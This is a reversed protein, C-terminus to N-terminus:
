GHLVWEVLDEITTPAVSGPPEVEGSAFNLTALGHARYTAAVTSKDVVDAPLDIVGLRCSALVTGVEAADLFGHNVVALGRVPSEDLPGAGISHVRAELGPAATRWADGDRLKEILRAREGPGGLVAIDLRQEFPPATAASPFNSPTPLKVVKGEVRRGVRHIWRDCNVAVADAAPLALALPPRQILGRLRRIPQQTFLPQEWGEHVSLALRVGPRARRWVRLQQAFALPSGVHRWKALGFNAWHVWLIDLPGDLHDWVDGVLVTKERSRIRDDTSPPPETARPARVVILEPDHGLDILRTVLLRAQDVVGHASAIGAPAVLVIKSM